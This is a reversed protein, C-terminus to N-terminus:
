LEIEDHKNDLTINTHYKALDSDNKAFVKFDDVFKDAIEQNELFLIPTNNWLDSFYKINLILSPDQSSSYEQTIDYVEYHTSVDIYVISIEITDFKFNQILIQQKLKEYFKQILNNM